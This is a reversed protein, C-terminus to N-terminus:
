VRETQPQGVWRLVRAKEYLNLYKKMVKDWTHKQRIRQVAQLQMRRLIDPQSYLLIARELAALLSVVDTGQYAIGTQGDVVKVLGGVHHVVPINGFLQAIYDTLGCPEYRSPIVFFDGAAYVQNAVMPSYGRLFCIRGVMGNMEVLNQLQQEEEKGGSGLLLAQGSPHRQFLEQLAAILLDVGKQASLRGIFTFLPADLNCTISGFIELDAPPHMTALQQLLTQKCKKKGKLIDTSDAPDFGEAIGAMEPEVPNFDAPNIGNTVGELIVGRRALEHGLWGTLSDDETQQLERAYNESVTNMVAFRGASLFPDFADVLCNALIAQTPLGTIAQAFLLDAIEQHYGLGANHITVVCGTGRFYSRLGASENILAPVVATHGDHCHIIDPREGLLIMLELAAKQLLINMAFYDYHGMGRQKWDERAEDQPTYTYVDSKEGFRESELLYVTVRAKRCFWVRVEERREQLRYNMDVAFCLARERQLPDSLLECGLELPKMFGYLPMVIRVDRGSWRAFSEALQKCVDKIGGAGAFDGYERSLMWIKRIPQRPDQEKM